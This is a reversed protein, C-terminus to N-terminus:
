ILCAAYCDLNPEYYVTHLVVIFYQKTNSNHPRISALPTPRVNHQDTNNVLMQSVPVFVELGLDV